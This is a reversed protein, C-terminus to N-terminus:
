PRDSATVARHWACHGLPQGQCAASVTEAEEQAYEIEDRAIVFLENVREVQTKPAFWGRMRVKGCGPMEPLFGQM